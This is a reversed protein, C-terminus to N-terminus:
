DAWQELLDVEVERLQGRLSERFVVGTETIAGIELNKFQSGIRLRQGDIVVSCQAPDDTYTHTSFVFNMYRVQQEAPLDRLQWRKANTALSRSPTITVGSNPNPERTSRQARLQKPDTTADNAAAGTPITLDSAAKIDGSTDLVDRYTANSHQRQAIPNRDEADTPQGGQLGTGSGPQTSTVSFPDDVAASPLLFIWSLLGANIILAATLGLVLRRHLPKQRSPRLSLTTEGANQEAQSKKLADLIYSM